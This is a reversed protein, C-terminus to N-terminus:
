QGAGDSSASHMMFIAELSGQFRASASGYEYYHKVAGQKDKDINSSKLMPIFTERRVTCLLLM